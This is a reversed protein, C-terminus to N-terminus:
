QKKLVTNIYDVTEYNNAVDKTIYNQVKLMDESSQKIPIYWKKNGKKVCTNASGTGNLKRWHKAMLRRFDDESKDEPKIMVIHYHSASESHELVAFRSVKKTSAQRGFCARELHKMFVSLTKSADFAKRKSTFSLTVFLNWKISGTMEVLVNQENTLKITM